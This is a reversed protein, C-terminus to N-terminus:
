FNYQFSFVFKQTEICTFHFVYIVLSTFSKSVAFLLCLHIKWFTGLISYRINFTSHPTDRKNEKTTNGSQMCWGYFFLALCAKKNLTWLQEFNLASAWFQLQGFFPNSIEKSSMTIGLMKQDMNFNKGKSCSHM